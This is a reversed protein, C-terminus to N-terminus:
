EGFKPTDDPHDFLWPKFKAGADAAKEELYRIHSDRAVIKKRDKERDEIAKDLKTELNCIKTELGDIRENCEKRETELLEKLQGSLTVEQKDRRNFYWLFFGIVATVISGGGIKLLDTEDAFIM